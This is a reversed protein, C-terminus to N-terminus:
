QVNYVTEATQILVLGLPACRGLSSISIFAMCVLSVTKLMTYKLSVVTVLILIVFKNKTTNLVYYQLAMDVITCAYDINVATLTIYVMAITISLAHM